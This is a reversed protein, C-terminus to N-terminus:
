PEGLYYPFLAIGAVEERIRMLKDFQFHKIAVAQALLMFVQLTTMYPLVFATVNM